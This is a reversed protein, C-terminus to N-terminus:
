TLLNRPLYRIRSSGDRMQSTFSVTSSAVSEVVSVVGEAVSVRADSSRDSRGRSMSTPYTTDGFLKKKSRIYIYIYIYVCM